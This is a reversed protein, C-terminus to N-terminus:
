IRGSEVISRSQCSDILRVYLERTYIGIRYCLSEYRSFFYSIQAFKPRFNPFRTRTFKILARALNAERSRFGCQGRRRPVRWGSARRVIRTKRSLFLTSHPVYMCIYALVGVARTVCFWKSLKRRAAINKWGDLKDDFIISQFYENKM